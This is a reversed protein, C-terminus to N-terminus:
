SLETLPKTSDAFRQQKVGASQAMTLWLDALPRDGDFHFHGRKWGGGAILVQLDGYNHSDGDSIGSGMVLTTSDLLGTAKLREVVHAYFQMHFLDIKALKDKAEDGKTHTIVHHNQPKDFVGHYMRPSDWREPDILLTAVRTLDNQFAHV